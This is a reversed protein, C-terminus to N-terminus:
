CIAVAQSVGSTSIWGQEAPPKLVLAPKFDPKCKTCNASTPGNCLACDFHCDFCAGAMPADALPDEYKGCM